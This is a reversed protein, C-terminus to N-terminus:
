LGLASLLTYRQLYSVTSGIAQVSNKGGSEDPSAMLTTRQKHGMVHSVDCHVTILQDRQETEWSFTLQHKGLIPNIKACIYDLSSHRYNTRKGNHTYDVEANKE